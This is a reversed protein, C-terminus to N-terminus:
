LADRYVCLKGPSLVKSKEAKTPHGSVSKRGGGVRGIGGRRRRRGEEEEMFNNPEKSNLM